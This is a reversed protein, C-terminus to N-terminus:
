LGLNVVDTAWLVECLYLLRLPFTVTDCQREYAPLASLAIMIADPIVIGVDPFGENLPGSNGPKCTRLSDEDRNTV